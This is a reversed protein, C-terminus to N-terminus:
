AKWRKRQGDRMYMWESGDAHEVFLAFPDLYPAQRFSGRVRSGDPPTLGSFALDRLIAEIAIQDTTNM